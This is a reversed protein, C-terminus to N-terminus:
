GGGFMIKRLREEQNKPVLIVEDGEEVGSIVQSYQDGRVGLEVYVKKLEGNAEKYVYAKGNGPDIRVYKNPIVLVDKLKRTIISVNASM